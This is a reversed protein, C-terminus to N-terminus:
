KNIKRSAYYNRQYQKLKDNLDTNMLYRESQYKRKIDEQKETSSRYKNRADEKLVEENAAYYMAAKEKGGKNNDWADKM